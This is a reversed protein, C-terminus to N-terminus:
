TTSYDATVDRGFNDRVKRDEPVAVVADQLDGDPAMAINMDIYYWRSIRRERADKIAVPRGSHLAQFLSTTRQPGDLLLQEPSM